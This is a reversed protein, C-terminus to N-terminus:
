PVAEAGAHARRLDLTVASGKARSASRALERRMGREVADVLYPRIEDPRIIRHVSGMQQARQITHIADFEAAVEGLKESRVTAVVDPDRKADEVRPDAKTRAEVERAFVVAAAPAGGIVSAYAGEVAAIELNENLTASFVVFAGGHYRSVVCFVMPGRFNTVARGIEAGYELQLNRLSEPSGDFGSLNALVVVPRNGSAANIARAVKKSSLPFLTGSTWHEPGDAPPVGYRPLPRSEIGLLCVPIGGLHADWVVAIEADRMARWRELTPHDQDAVAAMLSRMDFPKKRGPNTEESFIDGVSRFGDPGSPRHPSECVDRDVPDTTPARRPFREGPVVYTHEYHRLLLRCAEDLDRAWYQAQGNPGMVRDHGGIGINDEASVGGSYDLAQKGTLVMASEPTMVLIGKTHMLMTAEANWYPQAGVNIGAVVINVEGGGQTFEILRRLVRGIWDMNETGSDMAIKAGASLAFWELPVDLERALDLAAVIRRCEPEALSGLARSPDGLVVVRTIGEPYAGTFTRIVGVVVNAANRGWPRDVPTLTRGGDELDYEAFTGPPFDAPQGPSPTLLRILEYPYALGRQQMQVVKQRYESLSEIPETAPEGFALVLGRGSPNSIELVQDRTEGTAPEVLDGRICVKELGLGDAMPALRHVIGFLEPLPLEVPPWVDLLVQNGVLRRADPRRAQELRIAELAETLMRELHPLGVTRGEDDTVPTLDRVEALAFLREDKPNDRAVGRFLYVDEVSPLRDIWFGALRHLGLRKGMMPHFGRSIGEEQFGHETHRFTFHQTTAARLNETPRSEAVVVRRIHRDFAVADLTAAATASSEEPPAPPDNRWLYLDLVVDEADPVTRAVKAAGEVVRDLDEAEGSAAILHITKGDLPYAATVLIAGDVGISRFPGLDRIRYYRRALVEMLVGRAEPRAEHLRRTVLRKLPQPCGVLAAIRVDRDPGEPDGELADLEELARHYVEDRATELVPQDFFRYRVERGLDCLTPNRGRALSEIRELTARFGPRAVARLEEVGDLWRDLIAMVAPVQRSLRHHSRAIRLLAEEMAATRDLSAVGHRGLAIRLHERFQESVLPQDPRLTRLYTFFEEERDHAWPAPEDERGDRRGHAVSAIDAFAELAAEEAERVSGLRDPVKGGLTAWDTTVTAAPAEVDFGLIMQRLDWLSQLCRGTQDSPEIQETLLDFRPHGRGESAERSPRHQGVEPLLELIAAGPDVQVNPRVFVRRIRGAVPARLSMEMKMAEVVAVAQGQGVAAGVEVPLAVVVAPAPARVTVGDDQAVHHVIGDVVVSSGEGQRVTATKPGLGSLTRVGAEPDTPSLAVSFTRGAVQVRYRAEDVRLIRLTIAHEGVVLAVEHGIDEGVEPRGRAATTLFRELEARERQRHIRIAADIAAVAATRGEDGPHIAAVGKM